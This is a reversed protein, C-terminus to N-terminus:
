QILFETFYIEQIQGTKLFKNLKSIIEQKLRQKGSITSIDDFMKESLITILADKMQVNQEEVEKHLKEDSLEMKISIKLYHKGGADALNVLITDWDYIKENKEGKKEEPKHAGESALLITGEAARALGSVALGLSVVCICVLVLGSRIKM